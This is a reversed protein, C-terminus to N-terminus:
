HKGPSENDDDEGSVNIDGVGSGKYVPLARVAEAAERKEKMAKAIRASLAGVAEPPIGLAGLMQVQEETVHEALTEILATDEASQPFIEKGMLTNVLAPAFQLLKKREDSSRQYQMAQMQREHQQSSMQMMLDKMMGFMDMNEQMLTHRIRENHEDRRLSMDDMNQQRRYVQQLLMENHRMRQMTQGQADPPETMLGGKTHDAENQVVFPQRAGPETAAGYFVWINFTQVGSLDQSYAEARGRFRQELVKPECAGTESFKFTDIETWQMGTMHVLVIRTVREKDPDGVVLTLWEALTRRAM